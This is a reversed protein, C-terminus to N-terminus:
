LRAGLAADRRRGGRGALWIVALSTAWAFAFSIVALASAQRGDFRTFEVLYIPFTKFRSGVLLNALTFEVFVTSFVLLAGSMIGPMINPAIVRTMTVFWGAGLSQAAETLTRFDTANLANVVPKHMFPLSVVMCAAILMGPSYVIEAGFRAYSRLLALALIVGPIGFPLITLLEVFPKAKPVRLYTWYATPTVLLVSLVMASLSIVLSNGLTMGFARRSTAAQWWEVTLGEPLITRDWRVSFSFLLTALVPVTMYALFFAILTIRWLRGQKM